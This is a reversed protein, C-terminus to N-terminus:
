RSKQKKNIEGTVKAVIEPLFISLQQRILDSLSIMRIKAEEEAAKKLREPLYFNIQVMKDDM